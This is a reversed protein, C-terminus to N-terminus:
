ATLVTPHGAKGINRGLIRRILPTRPVKYVNAALKMPDAPNLLTWSLWYITKMRSEMNEQGQPEKMNECWKETLIVFM